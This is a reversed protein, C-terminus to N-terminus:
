FRGVATFSILLFVPVTSAPPLTHTTHLLTHSWLPSRPPSPPQSTGSFSVTSCNIVGSEVSVNLLYKCFVSPTAIQAFMAALTFNWGTGSVHLSAKSSWLSLEVVSAGDNEGSVEDWYQHSIFDSILCHTRLQEGVRHWKHAKYQRQIYFQDPCISYFLINRKDNCILCGCIKLINLAYETQFILM